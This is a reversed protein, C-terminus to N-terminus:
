NEHESLKFNQLQNIIELAEDSGIRNILLEEMWNLFLQIDAAPVLRDQEIMIAQSRQKATILRDIIKSITDLDKLDDLGNELAKAKMILAQMLKIENDPNVLEESSVDELEALVEKLEAGAYKSYMGHSYRPSDTGKLSKGGHMRCRNSGNVPSNQCPNGSRTKAGCIQKNM